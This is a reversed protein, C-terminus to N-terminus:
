RRLAEVDAMSMGDHCPHYAYYGAWSLLWDAPGNGICIGVPVCYRWLLYAAFAGAFLPWERVPVLLATSGRPTTPVDETM